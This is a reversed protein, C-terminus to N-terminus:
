SDGAIGATRFFYILELSFETGGRVWDYRFGSIPDTADANHISEGAWLRLGLHDALRGQYGIRVGGSRDVGRIERAAAPGDLSSKTERYAFGVGGFASGVRTPWFRCDAFFRVGRNEDRFRGAEVGNSFDTTSTGYTYGADYQLRGSGAYTLGGAIGGDTRDEPRQDGIRLVTSQGVSAGAWLGLGTHVDGRAEGSLTFAAAFACLACLSRAMSSLKRLDREM